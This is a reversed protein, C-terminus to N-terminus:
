APFGTKGFGENKTQEKKRTGRNERLNKGAIRFQREKFRGYERYYGWKLLYELRHWLINAIGLLNLSIIYDHFKIKQL